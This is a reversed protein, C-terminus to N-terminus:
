LNDKIVIEGYQCFANDKKSTIHLLLGTYRDLPNKSKHVEELNTM